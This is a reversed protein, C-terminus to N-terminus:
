ALHAIFKKVAQVCRAITTAISSEVNAVPWDKEEVLIVSTRKATRRRVRHPACGASPKSVGMVLRVSRLSVVQAFMNRVPTVHGLWVILAAIRKATAVNLRVRALLVFSTTVTMVSTWSAVLLVFCM